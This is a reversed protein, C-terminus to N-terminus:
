TACIYSPPILTSTFRFGEVDKSNEDAVWYIECFGTKHRAGELTDLYEVFGYVYWAKRGDKVRKSLEAWENNFILAYMMHEGGPPIVFDMDEVVM